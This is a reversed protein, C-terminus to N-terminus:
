QFIQQALTRLDRPNFPKAVRRVRKEALPIALDEEGACAVVLRNSAHPCAQLLATAFPEAAGGAMRNDVIIM